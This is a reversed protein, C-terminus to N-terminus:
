MGALRVLMDAAAQVPEADRYEAYRDSLALAYARMTDSEAAQQLLAAVKEATAQNAPIGLGIQALRTANANIRGEDHFYVGVQPVGAYLAAASMGLSSAHLVVARGPVTDALVFVGANHEIRSRAPHNELIASADPLHVLSNLGSLAIAEILLKAASTASFYAILGERGQTPKPSGGPHQIGLYQDHRVQWYPDFIPITMLATANAQNLQSLKDIPSLGHSVLIDNFKTVYHENALPLKVGNGQIDPFGDGDSPPLTYGNGVALTPVLHRCAMTLTPAYDAVVVDPRFSRIEDVWAQVRSAFPKQELLAEVMIGGFNKWPTNITRTHALIEPSSLEDEREMRGIFNSAQRSVYRVFVNQRARRVHEVLELLLLSHGNGHGFENGLLIRM